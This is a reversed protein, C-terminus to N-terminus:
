SPQHSSPNLRLLAPTKSSVPPPNLRRYQAIRSRLHRQQQRQFRDFHVGEPPFM